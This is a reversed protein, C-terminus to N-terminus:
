LMYASLFEDIKGELERNLDAILAEVMQYLLLDRERLTLNESITQSRVAKASAFALRFGRDDRIELVVGIVADYRRSQDVTLAGRVGTEVPLNTEIVEAQDIVFHARRGTGAAFLRDTAWQRTAQAPSVPILHEVNPERLPPVYNEVIEVEAVDLRIQGLHSYTLELKPSPPLPQACSALFLLLGVVPLSSWGVLLGLRGAVVPM